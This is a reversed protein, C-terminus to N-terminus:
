LEVLLKKISLLKNSIAEVLDKEDLATPNSISNKNEEEEDLLILSTILYLTKDDIQNLSQSLEKLKNNFRNALSRLRAEDGDNCTLTHKTENIILDIRPM